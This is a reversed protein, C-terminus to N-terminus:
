HHESALRAAEAAQASLSLNLDAPPSSQSTCSKYELLAILRDLEVLTNETCFLLLWRDHSGHGASSSRERHSLTQGDGHLSESRAPSDQAMSSIERGALTLLRCRLLM